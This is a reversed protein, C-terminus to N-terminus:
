WSYGGDRLGARCEFINRRAPDGVRALSWLAALGYLAPFALVGLCLAWQESHRWEHHLLEPRRQLRDQSIRLLIVDGITIASARPALRGRYDAVLITGHPGPRRQGGGALALGLPTSLNAWNAIRRLHDRQRLPGDPGTQPATDAM